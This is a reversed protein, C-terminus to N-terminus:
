GHIVDSTNAQSSSWISEIADVHITFVEAVTSAGPSFRIHTRIDATSRTNEDRDLTTDRRM